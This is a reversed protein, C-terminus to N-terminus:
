VCHVKLISAAYQTAQQLTGCAVPFSRPNSLDTVSWQGEWLHICVSRSWHPISHGSQAIVGAVVSEGFSWDRKNAGLGQTHLWDVASDRTFNNM